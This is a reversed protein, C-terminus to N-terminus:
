NSVLPWVVLWVFGASALCIALMAGAKQMLTASPLAEVKWPHQLSEEMLGDHWRRERAALRATLMGASRGRRPWSM